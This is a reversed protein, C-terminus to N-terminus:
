LEVFQNKYLEKLTEELERKKVHIDAILGGHQQIYSIVHNVSEHVPIEIEYYQHNENKLIRFFSHNLQLPQELHFVVKKTKQYTQIFQELKGDYYIKGKDILILRQALFEIDGIDHTTLIVTVQREHNIKKITNRVIDKTLIDLGITPEDLFLIDPHHILSAALDARMRQGLSLKRVQQYLFPKMGLLEVLEDFRRQFEKKEIKYIVRLLEFSEILPLDWWLQTRQGFVVGINRVVQKREFFPEKGNVLVRGSTQKLIGTLIKITTSKGAGNPGVYGVIEGKSISFSIGDIARIPIKQRKFLGLISGLLGKPRQYQYFIKTLDEVYIQGETTKM